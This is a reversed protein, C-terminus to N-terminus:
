LNFNSYKEALCELVDEHSYDPMKDKCTIYGRLIEDVVKTMPKRQEKGMQYLVPILDERIKPSYM